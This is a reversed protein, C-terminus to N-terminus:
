SSKIKHPALPARDRLDKLQVAHIFRALEERTYADTEVFSIGYAPRGRYDPLRGAVRSIIAMEEFPRRNSSSRRRLGFPTMVLAESEGEPFVSLVDSPPRFRVRLEDNKQLWPEDLIVRLGGASVDTATVQRNKSPTREFLLEVPMELRARYDRRRNDKTGARLIGASQDQKRAMAERRQAKAIERALVDGQGPLLAKFELGYEYTPAGSAPHRSVISGLLLLKQDAGTWEFALETGRQLVIWSRLRAGTVSVNLVMANVPLRMGAVRLQVEVNVRQRYVRRRNVADVM